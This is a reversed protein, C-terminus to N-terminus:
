TDYMDPSNKVNKGKRIHQPKKWKKAEGKLSFLKELVAKPLLGVKDLSSVTHFESKKPKKKGSSFTTNERKSINNLGNVNMTSKWNDINDWMVKLLSGKAHQCGYYIAADVSRRKQADKAQRILSTRVAMEAACPHKHGKTDFVVVKKTRIDFLVHYRTHVWDAGELFLRYTEALRNPSSYCDAAHIIFAKSRKSSNKALLLWKTQLPIWETLSIYKVRFCGAKKLRETYSKVNKEGFPREGKEEAIVLEWAFSVNRQRCLSELALWAIPEARYMPLGVTLTIPQKALRALKKERRRKRKEQDM